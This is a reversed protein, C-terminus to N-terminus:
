LWRVFAFTGFSYIDFSARREHAYIWNQGALRYLHANDRESHSGASRRAHLKRRPARAFVEWNRGTRPTWVLEAHSGTLCRTRRDMFLNNTQALSRTHTHTYKANGLMCKNALASPSRKLAKIAKLWAGDNFLHRAECSAMPHLPFPLRIYIRGFLM